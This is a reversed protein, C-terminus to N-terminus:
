AIELALLKEIIPFDAPLMNYSTLDEPRAWSHDKVELHKIDGETWVCQYAHIEVVGWDYQHLVKAVLPGVEIRIDLEERLERRLAEQPSEEAEIKGGPFEWFNGLKKDAPRQTILIKGNRPIIAACVALPITTKQQETM